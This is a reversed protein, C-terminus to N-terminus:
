MKSLYTSAGLEVLNQDKAIVQDHLSQRYVLVQKNISADHIGLIQAALLGANLGGGIAVTAVPVGNPMQLISHMSDVGSLSKTLIPVGIVPLPTLSAIM